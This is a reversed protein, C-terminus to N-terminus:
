EDPEATNADWRCVPGVPFLNANSLSLSLSFVSPLLIVKIKLLIIHLLCLSGLVAPPAASVPLLSRSSLPGPPAPHMHMHVRTPPPTPHLVAVSLPLSCRQCWDYSFHPNHFHFDVTSRHKGFSFLMLPLGTNISCISRLTAWGRESAVRKYSSLQVWVNFAWLYILPIFLTGCDCHLWHRMLPSCAPVFM